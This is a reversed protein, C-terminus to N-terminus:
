GGFSKLTPPGIFKKKRGVFFRFNRWALKLGDADGVDWRRAAYVAAVGAVRVDPERNAARFCNRQGTGGPTGGAGECADAKDVMMGQPRFLM